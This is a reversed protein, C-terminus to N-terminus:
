PMTAKRSRRWYPMMLLLPGKTLADVTAVGVLALCNFGPDCRTGEQATEMADLVLFFVLLLPLPLDARPCGGWGMGGGYM